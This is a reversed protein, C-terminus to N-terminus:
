SLTIELEGADIVVPDGIQWTRTIPDGNGDRIAYYELLNGGSAADYCGVYAASIEASASAAFEIAANNSSMGSTGSSATTSGESQTGSWNALSAAVGVRAVGGGTQETGGTTAAATLLAWYRTAPPVYAQARYDFDILRNRQYNTLPM